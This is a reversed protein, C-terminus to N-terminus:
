NQSQLKDLQNANQTEIDKQLVMENDLRERGTDEICM